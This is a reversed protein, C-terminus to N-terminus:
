GSPPAQHWLSTLVNMREILVLSMKCIEPQDIMGAHILTAQLTAGAMMMLHLQKQLAKAEAQLEDLGEGVVQQLISFGTVHASVGSLHRHFDYLQPVQGADALSAWDLKVPKKGEPLKDCFTRLMAEAERVGETDGERRRVKIQGKITHAADQRMLMVFEDRLRFNAAICIATEIGSRLIIDAELYRQANWLVTFGRHHSWLRQFLMVSFMRPDTNLGEVDSSFDALMQALATVGDYLKAEDQTNENTM